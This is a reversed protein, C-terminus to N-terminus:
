GEPSLELRKGCGGLQDIGRSSVRIKFVVWECSSTSFRQDNHVFICPNELRDSAGSRAATSATPGWASYSETAGVSIVVVDVLLVIDCSNRWTRRLTQPDPTFSVRSLM